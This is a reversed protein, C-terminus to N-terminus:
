APQLPAESSDVWLHINAETVSSGGPWGRHVGANGIAPWSLTFGLAAYPQMPIDFAMRAMFRAIELAVSKQKATDFERRAAEVLRNMEPHGDRANKGDPSMGVFRTGNRHWTAYAQAAFTPQSSGNRYVIGPFGATPRNFNAAGAYAQSFSPLWKDQFPQPDLRARIGGAHLMGSLLEATRTYAPGFENGGNYHLLTDIGDRYGAASMLRTAEDPDYQFYHGDPGFSGADTPSVWLGEWCAAIASHYRVDVPLGAEAFRERGTKLNIMTERDILLSVAQRLREDKWPSEGDYGFTIAGPPQGFSEAQGLVLAPLERYTSIMDSQTVVSPWILGARFQSLRNMYDPVVIQELKDPFPRGKFYYDPNRSWVRMLGPRNETLIWPGYGRVESWTDFGNESERPMVYLHRASALLGLFSADPYKLRFVVTSADPSTVTEVPGGPATEGHYALDGRAPSQSAFKRWSFMVDGADIVRGNTPARQEWRQGPRLKLTVTLRDGSFEASEALDGETGGTALQPHLAVKFKLLRPYTFAAIQNFTAASTSSLPDFSFYDSTVYGKFTGGAQARSTSDEPPAVLTAVVEADTQIGCGL